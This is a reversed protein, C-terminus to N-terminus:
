AVEVVPKSIFAKTKSSKAKADIKSTKAVPKCM